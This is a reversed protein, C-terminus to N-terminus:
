LNKCLVYQNTGSEVYADGAVIAHLVPNPGAQLNARV